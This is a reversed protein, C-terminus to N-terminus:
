KDTGGPEKPRGGAADEAPQTPSMIDFWYDPFTYRPRDDDTGPLRPPFGQAFMQAFFDQFPLPSSTGTGAAPKAGRAPAAPTGAGTAAQGAQGMQGVQAMTNAMANVVEQWAAGASRASTASAAAPAYHMMSRAFADAWPNGTSPARAEPASFALFADIWPNGTRPPAARPPPEAGPMRSLMAALMQQLAGSAALSRSLGGVMLAAYAPMMQRVLAVGLGTSAAVQNAVARSMEGPGFVADLAQQGARSLESPAAPQAYLAGYPGNAMLSMLLGMAEPSQTAHRFGQAFAPIMAEAAAQTQQLSLGYARALAEMGKGGQASSLMRLFEDM